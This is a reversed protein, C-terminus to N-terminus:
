RKVTYHLRAMQGYLAALRGQAFGDASAKVAADLMKGSVSLPFYGRADQYRQLTEIQEICEAQAAVRAMLKMQSREIGELARKFAEERFLALATRAAWADHNSM